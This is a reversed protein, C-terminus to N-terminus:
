RGARGDSGAKMAKVVGYKERVRRECGRRKTKQKDKACAKLGSSRKKARTVTKSSRVPTTPPISRAPTTPPPTLNEGPAQSVSGPVLLPAPNTLPGQCADASCEEAAAPVAPFGAGTRADYVDPAGDTDQAVLGQATVFFINDGSPDIVVSEVPRTASGGSVLSVTGESSGPAEYWEYLDSLGNTAQSSLPAATEFVIRSGDESVARSSMDYEQQVQGGLKSPLIHANCNTEGETENCNGNTDYGDEGTSVRQLVGTEADYRYVDQANDTDGAVLQGYSSFVLFQGSAGATQSQSEGVANAWLYADNLKGQEAEERVGEPLDAPCHIDEVTGSIAPGSCLDAIFALKGTMSDYVYLNDAGKVPALGQANVGEVLAGRAVFYVRSGDPAVRVVGRVDAAEGAHPDHSVQVLSTVGTSQTEGPVCAEGEGSPCGISAMYLDNGEDRDGEVLSANTLFFVRSGGRSAGAFEASARAGAVADGGCPVEVCGGVLPRSVEVTREGNLRVFLQFRAPRECNNVSATFFVERGGVSVADFGNAVRFGEVGNSGPSNTDLGLVEQCGPSILGGSNNLGVFRLSAPEGGCGRAVEYLRIPSAGVPLPLLPEVEGPAGIVLHCLDASGGWYLIDTLFHHKQLGELVPGAEWGAATDPVGASHFLLEAQTALQAANEDNPGLQGLVFTSELTSSVDDGTGGGYVTTTLSAPPLLSSTSWGSGGRRAIYAMEDDQQTFGLPAGAFVGPSFFAVSEGDPAVAEIDEVGFGDKFVPSVMEYHREASLALASSAVCGLVGAVLVVLAVLVGRRPLRPGSTTPCRPASRPRQPNHEPDSMSVAKRTSRMWM